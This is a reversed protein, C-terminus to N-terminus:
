IVTNLHGDLYIVNAILWGTLIVAGQTGRLIERLKDEGDWVFLPLHWFISGSAWIPNGEPSVLECCGLRTSRSTWRFGVNIDEQKQLWVTDWLWFRSLRARHIDPFSGNLSSRSFVSLCLRESRLFLCASWNLSSLAACECGVSRSVGIREMRVNAMGKGAESNGGSSGRKARCYFKM